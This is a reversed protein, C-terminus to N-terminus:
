LSLQTSQQNASAPPPEVHCEQDSGPTGFSDDFQTGDDEEVSSGQRGDEDAPQGEEAKGYLEREGIDDGVTREGEVEGEKEEGREGFVTERRARRASNEDRPRLQKGVAVTQMSAGHVLDVIDFCRKVFAKVAEEDRLQTDGHGDYHATLAAFKAGFKGAQVASFSIAEGFLNGTVSQRFQIGSFAYNVPRM